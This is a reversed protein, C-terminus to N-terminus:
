RGSDHIRQITGTRSVLDIGPPTGGGRQSRKGGLRKLAAEAARRWARQKYAWGDVVPARLVIQYEREAEARRDDAALADAYFLHNAPYLPALEVARKLIKVGEDPDGVSVPWVPAKAYISGLVRLPGAQDFREDAQVAEKAAKVVQPVLEVAGITKTTASLGLNIALYYHSEVRLPALKVAVRAHDLGRRALDGRRDHYEDALWGCARAARWRVEFNDSEMGVALDLAVLSNEVAAPTGKAMEQDAYAIL